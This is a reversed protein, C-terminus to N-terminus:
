YGSRQLFATNRIRHGKHGRSVPDPIPLFDPDPDPIFLGSWIESLKSVINPNFYKFIKSASVPHFFIRIRSPYFFLIRSVPYVDRIRLVAIIEKFNGCLVNFVSEVINRISYGLIRIFFPPLQTVEAEDFAEVVSIQPPQQAALSPYFILIPSGSHTVSLIRSLCGPDAGSYFFFTVEAGDLAEM